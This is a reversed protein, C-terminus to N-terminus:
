YSLTQDITFMSYSPIHELSRNDLHLSINSCFIARFNAPRLFTRTTGAHGSHFDCNQHLITNANGSGDTELTIRVYVLRLGFMLVVVLRKELSVQVNLMMFAPLVALAVDTAMDVAKIGIQAAAQDFCTDSATPGLVWRNPSCQLAVTFISAVGWLLSLGMIGYLAIAIWRIPKLAIILM